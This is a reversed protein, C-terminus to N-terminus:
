GLERRRLELERTIRDRAGAPVATDAAYAPWGRVTDIAHAVLKGAGKIAFQEGVGLLDDRTIGARKDAVRMQHQSTFGMGKAFTVDYAPTLSWHGDPHLHFSLNKVHDDQNVAVVNFVMRRYAELIAAPPLGLTLATRLYEEYSSAGADNYDLHLLGGLTHQHLRRGDVLDFRRVLLHAYGGDGELITVEAMDLGADRAMAAYAAEVRNFPLPTVLETRHDADGVGDFKLVSPVDGAHPPAYGSRIEGTAPVYRVLAKPRKGGASAGIRYIEPIAVDPHGTVVKRADAVLAAVELSEQEAPRTPLAVAPHYTLAGIAREGVYLLRQVPSMALEDHGRAAYYARIVRNGFDDPLSDAFV